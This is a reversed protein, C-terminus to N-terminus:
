GEASSEGRHTQGPLLPTRHPSHSTGAARPVGHRDGTCAVSCNQMTFGRMAITVMMRCANPLYWSPSKLHPHQTPSPLTFPLPHIGAGDGTHGALRGLFSSWPCHSGLTGPFPSESGGFLLPVFSRHAMIFYYIFLLGLLLPFAAVEARGGEQATNEGVAFSHVRWKRMQDRKAGLQM